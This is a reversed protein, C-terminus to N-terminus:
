GMSNWYDGYCSLCPGGADARRWRRLLAPPYCGWAAASGMSCRWCCGSLCCPRLCRLLLYYLRVRAFSSTSGISSSSNVQGLNKSFCSSPQSFGSDRHRPFPWFFFHLLQWFHSSFHNGWHGGLKTTVSHSTHAGTHGSPMISWSPVHM